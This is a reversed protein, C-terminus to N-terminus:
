DEDNVPDTEIGFAALRNRLERVARSLRARATPVRCGVVVAIDAHSLSLYYRLVIVTQMGPPLAQLAARVAPIPQPTKETAAGPEEVRAVLQRFMRTLRARRQHANAANTAVRLLWARLADPQEPLRHLHRAARFFTEATLEEALERDFLRHLLFRHVNTYLDDFHDALRQRADAPTPAVTAGRADEPQRIMAPAPASMGIEV